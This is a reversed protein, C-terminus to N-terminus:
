MKKKTKKSSKKATKTKKAKKVVKKAAPTSASFNPDKKAMLMFPLFPWMASAPTPALTSTGLFGIATAILLAKKM